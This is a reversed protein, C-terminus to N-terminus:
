LIKLAAKLTYMFAETDFILTDTEPICLNSDLVINSGTSTSIYRATFYLKYNDKIGKEQGEKFEYYFTAFHFNNKGDEKQAELFIKAGFADYSIKSMVFRKDNDLSALITESHKQIVIPLLQYQYLNNAENIRQQEVREKHIESDIRQLLTLPKPTGEPANRIDHIISKIEDYTIDLLQKKEMLSQELMEKSKM